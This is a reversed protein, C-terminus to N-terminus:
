TGKCYLGNLCFGAYKRILRKNHFLLKKLSYEYIYKSNPNIYKTKSVYKDFYLLFAILLKFDLSQDKFLKCYSMNLKETKNIIESGTEIITNLTGILKNHFKHLSPSNDSPPNNQAFEIIDELVKDSECSLTNNSVMIAIIKLEQQYFDLEPFRMQNSRIITTIFDLIKQDYLPPKLLKPTNTLLQTIYEDILEYQANTLLKMFVTEAISKYEIFNKFLLAKVLIWSNKNAALNLIQEKFQSNLIFSPKVICNGLYIFYYFSNSSLNIENFSFDNKTEAHCLKIYYIANESKNDVKEINAYLNTYPELELLGAAIKEAEPYENKICLDILDVMACLLRTELNLNIKHKNLRLKLMDIFRLHVATFKDDINPRITLDTILGEIYISFIKKENCKFNNFLITKAIENKHETQTLANDVIESYKNADNHYYVSLYLLLKDEYNINQFDTLYPLYEEPLRYVRCYFCFLRLIIKFSLDATNQHLFFAFNTLFSKLEFQADAVLVYDVEDFYSHIFPTLSHAANKIDELQQEVIYQNIKQGITTIFENIYKENIFTLSKTLANIFIKSSKSTINKNLSSKIKDFLAKECNKLRLDVVVQEEGKNYLFELFAELAKELETNDIEKIEEIVFFLKQVVTDLNNCFAAFRKDDAKVISFLIDLNQLVEVKDAAAEEELLKEFILEIFKDIFIVKTLCNIIKENIMTKDFLYTRQGLKFTVPYYEGILDFIQDELGSKQDDILSVAWIDLIVIINRPDKEGEFQNLSNSHIRAYHNKLYGGKLAASITIELTKLLNLRIEQSYSQIHIEDFLNMILLLESENIERFLRRLVILLGQTTYLLANDRSAVRYVYYELLKRSFPIIQQVYSKPLKNLVTSLMESAKLKNEPYAKDNEYTQVHAFFEDFTIHKCLLTNILQQFLGQKAKKTPETFILARIIEM